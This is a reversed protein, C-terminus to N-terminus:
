LDTQVTPLTSLVTEIVLEVEWTTGEVSEGTETSVVVGILFM